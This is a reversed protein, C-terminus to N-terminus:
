RVNERCAHVKVANVVPGRVIPIALVNRGLQGLESVFGRRDGGNFGPLRWHKKNVSVVIAVDIERLCNVEDCPQASATHDDFLEYKRVVDVVKQQMAVPERPLTSGAVEEVPVQFLAAIGGASCLRLSTKYVQAKIFLMWLNPPRGRAFYKTGTKVNSANKRTKM